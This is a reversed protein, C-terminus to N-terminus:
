FGDLFRDKFGRKGEDEVELGGVFRVPRGGSYKRFRYRKVLSQSQGGIDHVDM